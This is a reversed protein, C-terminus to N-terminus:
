LYNKGQAIKQMETGAGPPGRPGAAFASCPFSRKQGGEEGPSLPEQTEGELASSAVDVLGPMARLLRSHLLQALHVIKIWASNEGRFDEAVLAVGDAEPPSKVWVSVELTLRCWQGEGGDFRQTYVNHPATSQPQPGLWESKFGVKQPKGALYEKKSM